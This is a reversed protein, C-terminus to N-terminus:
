VSSNLTPDTGGHNECAVDHDLPKVQFKNANEAVVFVPLIGMVM